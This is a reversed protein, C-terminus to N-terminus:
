WNITVLRYGLLCPPVADVLRPTAEIVPPMERVDCAVPCSPKPEYLRCSGLPPARDTPGISM